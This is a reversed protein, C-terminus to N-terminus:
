AGAERAVGEPSLSWFLASLALSDSLFVALLFSAVHPQVLELGATESTTPGLGSRGSPLPFDSGALARCRGAAEGGRGM